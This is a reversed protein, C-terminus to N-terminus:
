PLLKISWTGFPTFPRSPCPARSDVFVDRTSRAGEGAVDTLTFDRRLYYTKTVDGITADLSTSAQADGFWLRATGSGHTAGSCTIRASLTVRLVTDPDVAVPPDLATSPFIADMVARALGSSGGRVNEVDHPVTTSGVSVETRLDFRTGVDDSNKLGIWARGAGLTTVRVGADAPIAIAGPDSIEGNVPGDGDGAGGDTLTLLARGNDVTLLPSTVNVWAGGVLKYYQATAPLATPYAIAVEITQGFTLGAVTFAFVGHPFTVGPPIPPLESEPV